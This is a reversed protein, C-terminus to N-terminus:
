KESGTINIVGNSDRSANLIQCNEFNLNANRIRLLFLSPRVIRFLNALQLDTAWGMEDHDIKSYYSKRETDYIVWGHQLKVPTDWMSRFRLKCETQKGWIDETALVFKGHCPEPLLGLAKEYLEVRELLTLAEWDDIFMRGELQESGNPDKPTTLIHIQPIGKNEPFTPHNEDNHYNVFFVLKPYIKGNIVASTEVATHLSLLELNNDRTESYSSTVRTLHISKNM